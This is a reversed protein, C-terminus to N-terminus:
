AMLDVGSNSNEIRDLLQQQLTSNPNYKWQYLSKDKSIAYLNYWRGDHEKTLAISSIATKPGLLMYYPKLVYKEDPPTVPHLLLSSIDFICVSKADGSTLIRGTPTDIIISRVVGSNGELSFIPATKILSYIVVSHDWGSLVAIGLESSIALFEIPNDLIRKSCRLRATSENWLKLSGGGCASVLITEADTDTTISTLQLCNVPGTHGELKATQNGEWDWRLILSDRGATYICETTLVVQTTKMTHGECIYKPVIQCAFRNRNSGRRSRDKTEQLKSWIIVKRDLSGSVVQEEDWECFEVASVSDNHGILNFAPVSLTSKHWISITCDASAVSVFSQSQGIHTIASDHESLNYVPEELSMLSRISVNGAEDGTAIFSLEPPPPPPASDDASMNLMENTQRVNPNVVAICTPVKDTQTVQVIGGTVEERIRIIWNQQDRDSCTDRIWQIYWDYCSGQCKVEPLTSTKITGKALEDRRRKLLLPKWVDNSTCISRMATCVCATSRLSHINMFRTVHQLLRNPLITNPKQRILNYDEVAKSTRIDFLQRLTNESLFQELSVTDTSFVKRIDSSSADLVGMDFLGQQLEAIDLQGDGNADMEDFANELFRIKLKQKEEKSIRKIAPAPMEPPKVDEVNNDQQEQEPSLPEPVEDFVDTAEIEGIRGEVFSANSLRSLGGQSRKKNMARSKKRPATILANGAQNSNSTSKRSSQSPPKRSM